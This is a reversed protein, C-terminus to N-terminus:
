SGASAGATGGVKMMKKWRSTYASLDIYQPKKSKEEQEEKQEDEKQQDDDVIATPPRTPHQNEWRCNQFPVCFPRIPPACHSSPATPVSTDANPSNPFLAHHLENGPKRATLSRASATRVACRTYNLSRM